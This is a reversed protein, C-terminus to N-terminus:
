ELETFQRGLLGHTLAHGISTPPCPMGRKFTDTRFDGYGDQPIAGGLLRAYGVNPRNPRCGALIPYRATQPRNGQPRTGYHDVGRRRPNQALKKGSRSKSNAAGALPLLSTDSRPWWPKQIMQPERAPQPPEARRLRSLRRSSTQAGMIPLACRRKMALGRSVPTWVSIDGGWREQIM